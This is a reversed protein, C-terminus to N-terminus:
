PSFRDSKIYAVLGIRQQESFVAKWPPMGKFGYTIRDYIFDPEMTGPSLKPAKGPYASAGHCHRCQQQWATEGLAIVKPDRLVAPPMPPPPPDAAPAPTQAQLGMPSAAAALVGLFAVRAAVWKLRNM